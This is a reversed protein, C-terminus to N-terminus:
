LFILLLSLVLFTFAPFSKKLEDKVKLHMAIACIMLIAIGTAGIIVLDNEFIGALLLTALAIKSAGVLKMFWNSLGYTEFEETMNKANGARWITSKKPRIIWVNYISLAIIIQISIKILEM